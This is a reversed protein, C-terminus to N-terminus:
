MHAIALMLVTFIFPFIENILPFFCYLIIQEGVVALRRDSHKNSALIWEFPCDQKRVRKNGKSPMDFTKFFHSAFSSALTM